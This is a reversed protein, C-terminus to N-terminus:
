LKEWVGWGYGPENWRNGEPQINFQFIYITGTFRNKKFYAKVNCSREGYFKRDQESPRQIEVVWYRMWWQKEYPQGPTRGDIRGTYPDMCDIEPIM